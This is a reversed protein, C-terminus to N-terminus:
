TFAGYLFFRKFIMAAPQARANYRISLRMVPKLIGQMNLFTVPNLHGPQPTVCISSHISLSSIFPAQLALGKRKKVLGKKNNSIIYPNRTGCLLLM